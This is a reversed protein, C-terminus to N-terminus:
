KQEEDLRIFMVMGRITKSGGRDGHIVRKEIVEFNGMDNDFCLNVFDRARQTIEDLRVLRAESIREDRLESDLRHARVLGKMRETTIAQPRTAM